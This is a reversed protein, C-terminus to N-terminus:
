FAGEANTHGIRVEAGRANRGIYTKTGLRDIHLSTPETM